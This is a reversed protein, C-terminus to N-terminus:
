QFHPYFVNNEMATIPGTLPYIELEGRFQMKKLYLFLIASTIASFDVGSTQFSIWGVTKQRGGDVIIENEFGKYSFTSADGDKHVFVPTVMSQSYVIVASLFVCLLTIFRM